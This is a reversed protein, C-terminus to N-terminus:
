GVEAFPTGLDDILTQPYNWQKNIESDAFTISVPGYSESSTKKTDVDSTTLKQIRYWIMKSIANWQSINITPTIITGDATADGSLTYYDTEYDFSVLYTDDPIGEGTIVTGLSMPTRETRSFSAWRDLTVNSGILIQDSAAEFQASWFDDYQCNLIRRVDASVKPIMATIAADQSTDGIGLETKVTALAILNLTM